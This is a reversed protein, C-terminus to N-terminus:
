FATWIFLRLADNDGANTGLGDFNRGAGNFKTYASYQLGVRVNVWPGYPSADPKGFPTGDIQFLFGSSDPKETRNAVYLLADRSGLYRLAAGDRRDHEAL